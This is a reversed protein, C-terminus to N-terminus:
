QADVSRPIKCRTPIISTLLRPAMRYCRDWSEKTPDTFPDYRQVLWSLESVIAARRQQVERLAEAEIFGESVFTAIERMTVPANQIKNAVSELQNRFDIVFQRKKFQKLTKENLQHIWLVDLILWAPLVASSLEELSDRCFEIRSNYDDFIPKLVPALTAETIEVFISIERDVGTPM